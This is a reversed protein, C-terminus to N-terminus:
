NVQQAGSVIHVPLLRPESRERAPDMRRDSGRRYQRLADQFKTFCKLCSTDTLSFDAPNIGHSPRDRRQAGWYERGRACEGISASGHRSDRTNNSVRRGSFVAASPAPSQRNKRDEVPRTTPHQGSPQGVRQGGVEAQVLQLLRDGPIASRGDEISVLPPLEGALLERPKQSVVADLDAHVPLPQRSLSNTSAEPLTDFVLLNIQVGVLGDACSLLAQFAVQREVVSLSWM